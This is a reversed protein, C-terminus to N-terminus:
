DNANGRKRHRRFKDLRTWLMAVAQGEASLRRMRSAALRLADDSMSAAMARIARRQERTLPSRSRSM